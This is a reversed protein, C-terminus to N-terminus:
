LRKLLLNEGGSSLWARRVQSEKTKWLKEVPIQPNDV